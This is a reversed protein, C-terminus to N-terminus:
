PKLNTLRYCSSDRTSGRAKSRQHLDQPGLATLEDNVLQHLRQAQGPLKTASIVSRVAIPYVYIYICINSLHVQIHIYIYIYMYMYM